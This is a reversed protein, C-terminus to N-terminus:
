QYSTEPSWTLKPAKYVATWKIVQNGLVLLCLFYPRHLDTDYCKIVADVSQYHSNYLKYDAESWSSLQNM